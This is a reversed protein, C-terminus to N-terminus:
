FLKWIEYNINKQEDIRSKPVRKDTAIVFKWGRKQCFEEAAKWKAQNVLYTMVEKKYRSKKKGQKAPTFVEKLPKVEVVYKQFGQETKTKIVFDVFYRHFNNDLPSIYTIILEESSWETIYPKNDCWVMLQKEWFSRYVINDVNGRYKKPFKPKFKGQYYHKNENPQKKTM